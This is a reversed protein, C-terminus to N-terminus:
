VNLTYPHAFRPFAVLVPLIQLGSEACCKFSILIRCDCRASRLTVLFVVATASRSLLSSSLSRGVIVGNVLSCAGLGRAGPINSCFSLLVCRQVRLRCYECMHLAVLVVLQLLALDRAGPYVLNFQGRQRCRAGYNQVFTVSTTPLRSKSYFFPFM